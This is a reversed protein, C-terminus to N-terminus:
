IFGAQYCLFWAVFVMGMHCMHEFVWVSIFDFIIAVFFLIVIAFVGCFNLFVLFVHLGSPGFPSPDCGDVECIVTEHRTTLMM